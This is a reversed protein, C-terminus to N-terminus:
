KAGMLARIDGAAASIDLGDYGMFGALEEVPYKQGERWLEILFKGAKPNRFWEEDFERVLYRRHQAEFIWARLYEACYFGSDVDALYREPGFGVGLHTALLEHYYSAVDAPEDARHLVQEYLLKAGYRRLMYLRQFGALRRFGNSPTYDLNRRLWRADHLLYELLFAYSETVAADGLWRYALSQSRDVHAYHEAHGAEHFLTEYDGEGGSPKIVLRVDDPVHLVACFARPSKLPRSETDLRVNTQDELLIGLDRLGGHLAPLMREAPFAEDYPLARFLHAIDCRQADDRLIRMEHLYTDLASFYLEDTESLFTQMVSTLHSLELARLEDYLAVYDPYGFSTAGRQCRREAEELLPNFAAMGELYRQELTHRRVPHPENAVLGPVNRYPVSQEDWEVAAAAEAAAVQEAIERTENELFGGAIFDLLYREEKAELDWTKVEAFREGEFLHGHRDYIPSIQLEPKLGARALYHELHLRRNFAEAEAFYEEPEM